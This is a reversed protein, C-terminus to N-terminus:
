LEFDLCRKTVLVTDVNKQTGSDANPIRLVVYAKGGYLKELRLEIVLDCVKM